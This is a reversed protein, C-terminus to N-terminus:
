PPVVGKIANAVGTAVVTGAADLRLHTRTRGRVEEVTSAPLTAMREGLSGVMLGARWYAEFDPFLREATIERTEVDVLGADTFAGRLAPMASVAASPPSAPEIGVERLALRIPEIPLGGGPVDWVYASVLGGPRVVRMMEAIGRAPEPVFFLVLAMVAADFRTAEFPLAMADGELFAAGAAGPRGRAFSLQGESPDVAQVEAPAAHQLLLETFVGNGCGVDIWRLGPAMALWNLFVTGVLRSYVGMGQEYAEGNDFRIPQETM